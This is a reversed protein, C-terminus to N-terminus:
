GSRTVSDAQLLPVPPTYPYSSAGLMAIQGTNRRLGEPRLARHGTYPSDSLM